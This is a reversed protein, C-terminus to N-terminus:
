KILRRVAFSVRCLNTDPRGKMLSVWRKRPKSIVIVLHRQRDFLQRSAAIFSWLSLFCHSVQGRAGNDTRLGVAIFGFGNMQYFLIGGRGGDLWHFIWASGSVISTIGPWPAVKSVIWKFPSARRIFARKSKNFGDANASLFHANTRCPNATRISNAFSPVFVIFSFPHRELFINLRCLAQLDQHFTFLVAAGIKILIKVSTFLTIQLTRLLFNQSFQTNKKPLSKLIFVDPLGLWNPLRGQM